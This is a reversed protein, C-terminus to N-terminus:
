QKQFTKCFTRYFRQSFQCANSDVFTFPASNTQVSVWDVLNTSAQVVYEFQPVGSICLAFQGSACAAPTLTAATTAYVTLSATSSNTSGASNSVTVYYTGAQAATVNSLTLVANTATAINNSNYVWQYNLAGTATATVSFTVNQGTIATNTTLTGTITPSQTPDDMPVTYSIEDSLLSEQNLADYTTAAFYYTAGEVLGSITATAVNGVSVKNDYVHSVTGYYINYGAVNSDTSLEWGFTVSQTALASVPLLMTLGSLLFLVLATRKTEFNILQCIM